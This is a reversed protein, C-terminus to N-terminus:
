STAPPAMSPAEGSGGSLHRSGRAALPLGQRCLPCEEPLYAKVELRLLAETRVGFDAGSASRDVLLGVGVLEGGREKVVSIVEAVSGGTTVVDEVVLVREGPRIEFGRRLQMRGQERETFIARASLAKAVEHALLIGGVAPAVVVEVGLDQFREALAACLAETWKPYQLLKFKEFYTGSHLGSTLLFHGQLLAGSKTMIEEIAQRNM